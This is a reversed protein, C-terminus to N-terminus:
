IAPDALALDLRRLLAESELGSEDTVLALLSRTEELCAPCAGLHVLFARSPITGGAVFADVVEDQNDFCDDCSMWPDTRQVFRGATDDDFPPTTNM